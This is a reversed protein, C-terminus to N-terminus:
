NGFLEDFIRDVRARRADRDLDFGAPPTQQLHRVVAFSHHAVIRHESEFSVCRRLNALSLIEAGDIPHFFPLVHVGGFAGAFPGQLLHQLDRFTGGPLRDAYTILQAENKM